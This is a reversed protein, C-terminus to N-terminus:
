WMAFLTCTAERSRAPSPMAQPSGAVSPLQPRSCGVQAPVGCISGDPLQEQFASGFDTLSQAPSPVRGGILRTYNLALQNVTANSITWTHAINAEHQAFTYNHVVWGLVNNGSPNVIFDGTEHFYSLTLRQKPTM